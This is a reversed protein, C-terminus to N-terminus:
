GALDAVRRAIHVGIGGVDQGLLEIEGTHIGVRVECGIGSAGGNIAEGARIAATPSEFVALFGDGTTKIERGSFRDLARRIMADHRELLDRWGLDGLSSALETSGVIDTFLVTALKRTPEPARRAGTLFEEVEDVVAESDDTWIFHDSGELEVFKADAIHDAIYRGLEVPVMRDGKRHLVLTPASIAPLAARVDIEKYGLMVSRVDRPSAALRQFRAWQQRYGVDDALSPAWAGLSVGTGWRDALYDASKQLQESSIGIPYDPAEAVRTFGGFVVLASSREPYTATFLVAASAGESVGFIAARELGVADMVAGIDSAYDDVNFAVGRDSLGTGRKDFTVLKAFTGLREVFRAVRQDEWLAEAHSVFGPVLVLDLPGEGTVTYAINVDGNKAYHIEPM